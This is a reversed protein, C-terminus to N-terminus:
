EIEKLYRYLTIRSINLEKAVATKNFDKNQKVIAKVKNLISGKENKLINKTQSTEMNNILMKENMAVFYKSLKEAKLISSRTINFLDYGEWAAEITNIILAFRPIYSKQKAMMSKIMETTEDSNQKATIENFIRKWERKADIDFRAINPDVDGFDNYIVIKKLEIYLMQIFDSYFTILKQNIEDEVYTEVKLDPFTFLMRDLFGNDINEETFFGALVNPQIGGLVPLIPKGIYDSQRTIRDVAIGKGSWSSLWQEKDSGEKYKNMDKFWGALEDKFVGVGNQNHSHLNILAEITVDDVIFQTRKPEEVEMVTLKDKKSLEKYEDYEKRRKVYRRREEGNIKELPFIISNISPSKGIGAEGVVAMWITSPEQWGKKVEIRISNGVCLSGVWLMAAGMYDTSNQLTRACENLYNTVQDPFIDLPFGTEEFVPKNKIVVAEPKKRDGYGKAYIDSAARSFDGDFHKTTYAAFPSILKEAEYITGTSFLYMCGSDKFIYGSHPSKAGNRRILTKNPLDKVISFDDGIIDFINNKENYDEWPTKSNSNYQKEVKIPVPIFEDSVENLIKCLNILIDREENSIYQIQHYDLNIINEYMCIYGGVGRTEIIAETYGKVRALKQNGDINKAQYIFHYGDSRTKKIILKSKYDDIHDKILDVLEKMFQDRLIKSPLVKLDVDICEIDAFGCILGYHDSEIITVVKKDQYEKWSKKPTKEPNLPIINIGQTILQKIYEYNM